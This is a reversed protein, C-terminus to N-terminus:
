GPEGTRFRARVPSTGSLQAAQDLYADLLSAAEGESGPMLHGYRDLTIAISGHGMFTSLAKANVGAAIMLSAFTHRCEHLGIPALGAAKWRLAARRALSRDAFPREGDRGFVLQAGERGTALKHLVLADRLVGALPVTRRGARSKPEIIARAGPDWAREVRITGGALDVDDWRLAMLEARRLGAYLATAWVARDGEDLAALLRAAEDPSAIRERTGRVAPLEVGATPNLAVVGDRLAKRYIARLPMLANRVTSPSLSAALRDALSQVDQRTIASLKRAGLEPLLYGHLAARYSRVASPKYPDGSRTRAEGQAAAALWAEAAERLTTPVPARLEGRRLAREADSRWARAAALTPFTKRVKRGDRASYASAEYSPSCNCRGGGASRCSRSHRKRIGTPLRKESM